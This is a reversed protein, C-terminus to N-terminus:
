RAAACAGLETGSPRKYDIGFRFIGIDGQRIKLALKMQSARMGPIQGWLRFCYSSGSAATEIADEIGQQGGLMYEFHKATGKRLARWAM